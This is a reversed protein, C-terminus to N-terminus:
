GGLEDLSVDFFDALEQLYQLRLGETIGNLWWSRATTRAIGQRGLAREFDPQSTIGRKEYALKQVKNKPTFKSTTM